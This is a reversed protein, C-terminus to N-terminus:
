RKLMQEIEDLRKRLEANEARLTAAEDALRQTSAASREHEQRLARIMLATLRNYDIGEIRGNSRSVAEPIAEAVEEAILGVDARGAMSPIEDNWDFRVPRLSLISALADDEISRINKKYRASSANTFGVCRLAGNVDLTFSANPTRTGIGVRGGDPNITLFGYSSGSASTSQIISYDNSAGNIGLYLSTRGATQTDGVLIGGGTAPTVTLLAEPSTTGIGLRGDHTLRMRTTLPNAIDGANKTQFDLNSSYEFDRALLRATPANAGADYTSLDLAVTASSGGRGVIGFRPASVGSASPRVEVSDKASIVAGNSAITWPAGTVGSQPVGEAQVALRLPRVFSAFWGQTSNGEGWVTPCTPPQTGAAAMRAAIVGSTVEMEVTYAQGRTVRVAGFDFTVVGVGPVVQATALVPGTIGQGARLRATIAPNNYADKTQIQVRTVWGTQAPTIVQYYTTGPTVVFSGAMNVAGTGVDAVEEGQSMPVGALGVALPVASVASRPSMTTYSGTGSPVRVDLELWLPQGDIFAGAPSPISLSFVGRTVEVGPFSQETGVMTGGSAATWLRAKFDALAGVPGGPASLSGQYTFSSNQALAQSGLLTLLAAVPASCRALFRNM